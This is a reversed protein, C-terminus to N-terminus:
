GFLVTHKKPNEEISKLYDKYSEKKHKKDIKYRLTELEDWSKESLQIVIEKVM